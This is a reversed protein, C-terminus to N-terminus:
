FDEVFHSFDGTAPEDGGGLQFFQDPFDVGERFGLRKNIRDFEPGM